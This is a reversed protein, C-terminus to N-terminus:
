KLTDFAADRIPVNNFESICLKAQHIAKFATVTQVFDSHIHM